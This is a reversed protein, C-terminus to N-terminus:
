PTYPTNKHCVRSLNLQFTSSHLGRGSVRVGGGGGEEGEEGEGGIALLDFAIEDWAGGLIYRSWNFKFAVNALPKDYKLKLRKIGPAKLTPKIPDVQVAKGPRAAGSAVQTCRRLNFKFAFKSLLEDSRLKM